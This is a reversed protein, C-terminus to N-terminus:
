EWEIAGIGDLYQENFDMYDEVMRMMYMKHEPYRLMMQQGMLDFAADDDYIAGDSAGSTEMYQEDLAMVDDIMKDLEDSTVIQLFDGQEIFKELIFRKAQKPNYAANKDEM